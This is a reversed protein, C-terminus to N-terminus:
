FLPNIIEINKLSSCNYFLGVGFSSKSFSLKISSLNKCGRFVYNGIYGSVGSINFNSLNTCNEFASDGIKYDTSLFNINRLKSCGSFAKEGIDDLTTPLIIEELIYDDQFAGEAISKVEMENFTEPITVLTKLNRSKVIQIKGFKIDIKIDRLFDPEVIDGKRYAEIVERMYSGSNWEGENSVVTGLQDMMKGEVYVVDDRQLYFKSNYVYSSGNEFRVRVSCPYTTEIKNLGEVKRNM